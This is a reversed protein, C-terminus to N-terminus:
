LAVKLGREKLFRELSLGLDQQVKELITERDKLRSIFDLRGWFPLDTRERISAVNYECSVDAERSTKSLIWGLVKIGRSALYHLSLLTQNVTGLGARGVLLVPLDLFEILDVVDKGPALPVLLGGAGEVLVLSHMLELRRYSEAIRDFNVEVGELKAAVGPAVAKEFAYTNILDLDDPSQSIRKLYVSDSGEAGSLCGSEVPKMVGADIGRSRFYAALAATVVTKGVNTDTGAIFIGSM